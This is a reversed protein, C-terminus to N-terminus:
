GTLLRAAGVEKKGPLSDSVKISTRAGPTLGFQIALSRMQVAADRAIAMAPHKVMGRSPHDYLVGEDWVIEMANQYTIVAECYAFLLDRDALTLVKMHALQAVTYDWVERIDERTSPCEPLGADPNPQDDNVKSQQQGALLKLSSPRRVGRPM